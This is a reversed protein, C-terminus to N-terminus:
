PRINLIRLKRTYHINLGPQFKRLRGRCPTGVPTGVESHKMRNNWVGPNTGQNSLKSVSPMAYSRTCCSGASISSASHGSWSGHKVATYMCTTYMCAAKCIENLRQLSSVDVGFYLYVHTWVAERTWSRSKEITLIKTTYAVAAIVHIAVVTTARLGHM